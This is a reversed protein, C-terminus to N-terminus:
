ALCLLRVLLPALLSPSFRRGSEASEFWLELLRAEAPLAALAALLVRLSAGAAGLSVKGRLWHVTGVISCNRSRWHHACGKTLSALM